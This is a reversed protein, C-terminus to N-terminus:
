RVAETTRLPYLSPSSFLSLPNINILRKVHTFEFIMVVAECAAEAIGWGKQSAPSEVLAKGLSPLPQRLSGCGWAKRELHPFEPESLNLLKDSTM